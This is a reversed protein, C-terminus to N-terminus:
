LGGVATARAERVHAPADLAIILVQLLIQSEPVILSPAPPSKVVVSTQANRRIAEQHRLSQLRAAFGATFFSRRVGLAQRERLNCGEPCDLARLTVHGVRDRRQAELQADCESADQPMARM